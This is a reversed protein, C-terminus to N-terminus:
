YHSLFMVMGTINKPNKTFHPLTLMISAKVTKFSVLILFSFYPILFSFILLIRYENLM